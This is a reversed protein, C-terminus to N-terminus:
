KKKYCLTYTDCAIANEHLEIYEFKGKVIEYIDSITLNRYHKKISATEMCHPDRNPGACTIILSGGKQLISVMKEISQQWYGDHELMETTIIVSPSFPPEYLHTLAVVDVNPGAFQDVGIYECNEFLEKVGGNIWYSGFEIVKESDFLEPHNYKVYKVFKMAAPHM